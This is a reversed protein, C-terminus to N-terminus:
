LVEGKTGYIDTIETGSEGVRSGINLVIQAKAGTDDKSETPLLWARLWLTVPVCTSIAAFVPLPSRVTSSDLGSSAHSTRLASRTGV